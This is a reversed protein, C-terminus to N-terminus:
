FLVMTNSPSVTLFMNPEIEGRLSFFLPFVAFIIFLSKCHLYLKSILGIKDEHCAGNNVMIKM